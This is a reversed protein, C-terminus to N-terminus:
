PCTPAHGDHLEDFVSFFTDSLDWLVLPFRARSKSYKNSALVCWVNESWTELENMWTAQEDYGGEVTLHRRKIADRRYIALLFHGNIFPYIDSIKSPFYTAKLACRDGHVRSLYILLRSLSTSCRAWSEVDTHNTSRQRELQWVRMICDLDVM